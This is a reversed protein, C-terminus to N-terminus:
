FAYKAPLAPVITIVDGAASSMDSMIVARGFSLDGTTAATVQGNAGAKVFAGNAVTGDTVVRVTGKVAGFLQITMPVDLYGTAAQDDSAGLPTDNLGTIAVHNADSGTKYLLYRSTTAADPLMSIKGHEYTGEGINAFQVSDLAQPAPRFMGRMALIGLYLHRKLKRM